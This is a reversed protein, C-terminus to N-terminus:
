VTGIVLVHITCLYLRVALQGKWKQRTGRSQFIISYVEFNPVTPQAVKNKYTRSKLNTCSFLLINKQKALLSFLILVENSMNDVYSGSYESGDHLFVGYPGVSGAVLREKGPSFINFIIILQEVNM